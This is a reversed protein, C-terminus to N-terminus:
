GKGSRHLSRLGHKKRPTQQDNDIMPYVLKLSLQDSYSYESM